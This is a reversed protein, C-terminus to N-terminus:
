DLQELRRELDRAEAPTLCRRVTQMLSEFDQQSLSAKPRGLLSVREVATAAPIMVRLFARLEEPGIASSVEAFIARVEDVTFLRDLLPQIELEEETMHELAQAVFSCYRLYLSRYRAPKEAADAGQVEAMLVRLAEVREHLGAHVAGFRSSAGPKRAEIREHIYREEHEAHVVCLYFLGDLDDLVMEVGASDDPAVTGMRRLLDLLAYRVGKHVAGYVDVEPLADDM